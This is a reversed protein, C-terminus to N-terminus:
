FNVARPDAPPSLLLLLVFHCFYVFVCICLYVFVCICLYVFVCICLYVFVFSPCSGTNDHSVCKCSMDCFPCSASSPLDKKLPTFGGIEIYITCANIDGNRAVKYLGAPSLNNPM